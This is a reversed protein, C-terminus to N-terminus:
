RTLNLNRPTVEFSVLYDPVQRASEQANGPNVFLLPNSGRLSAAAVQVRLTV